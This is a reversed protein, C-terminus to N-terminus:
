TRRWRRRSYKLCHGNFRDSSNQREDFVFALRQDDIQLFTHQPLTTAQALFDKRQREDFVAIMMSASLQHKAPILENFTEIERAIQREDVMRESRMMEQVQYLMTEFTEFSFWILPGVELRRMQKHAIVDARYQPRVREYQAIDLVDQLVMRRM